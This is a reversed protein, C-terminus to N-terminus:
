HYSVRSQVTYDPNSDRGGLWNETKNGEALLDFPKTYTPTLSGREFACNSLLSNLLRRQEIPDQRVYLTYAQQSLELIEAGTTTCDTGAPDHQALEGRIGALESEWATSKRTWLDDSIRGAILDEYSRDLKAQLADRHRELRVVADRRHQTNEAQSSRLADAIWDAIERPIQVRRVLEGLRSALDEERIYTNGCRGHYGTCHYYTYKAKKVEATIACGCIGCTLLGAFAHRHKSYRPRNASAFVVHVANFLAKSILPEHRGHYLKGKWRFAGYYIPNHLMRHIESKVLRRGSRPHTLGDSFATAAAQKVSIDGQAFREFLRRIAPAREPDPEIRHSNRNNAYGVPAVSPWHGQDAKEQLGKRVEESLNDSFNKAVLVKIGHVFKETSRSEPSLIVNEKVLHIELGLEELTTYDKLNRYLRDTKEVLIIRCDPRDKLLAVMQAFGRRGTSKATETDVYEELLKLGMDAAYQRLLKLQAPISFGEQEQERSSVRAYLVASRMPSAKRGRENSHTHQM